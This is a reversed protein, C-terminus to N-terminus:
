SKPQRDPRASRGSAEGEHRHQPRKRPGTLVVRALGWPAFRKSKTKGGKRLLEGFVGDIFLHDLKQTRVKFRRVVVDVRGLAHTPVDGAQAGPGLGHGGEKGDVSLHQRQLYADPFLQPRTGAPTALGSPRPEAKPTGDELGRRCCTSSLGFM